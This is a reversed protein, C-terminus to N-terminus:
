ITTSGYNKTRPRILYRYTLRIPRFLYHLPQLFRPLHIVSKDIENPILIIQIFWKSYHFHLKWRDSSREKLRLFYHYREGINVPRADASFLRQRIEHVIEDYIPDNKIREWAAEPIVFGFFENVLRLSLAVVNECGFQRAEDLFRNWDIDMSSRILEHIDCIWQFREWSHRSGHLCLYIFLDNFSLTPIDSGAIEVNELREWLGNVEKPLGFHSGSLKWHLEVIVSRDPNAFYIDKKRSIYWNTKELWSVSTLPEYGNEKIIDVARKFDKPQVLIDLDGYDRLAASGYAQVSLLPGKFPVARINEVELCKILEILKGTLYLNTRLHRQLEDELFIRIQDPLLETSANILNWSLLPLVSNRQAVNLLYKWDIEGSELFKSMEKVQGEPIATQCGYIILQREVSHSGNTM